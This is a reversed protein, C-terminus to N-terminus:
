DDSINTSNKAEFSIPSIASTPQVLADKSTTNESRQVYKTSNNQADVKKTL